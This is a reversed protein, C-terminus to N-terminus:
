NILFEKLIGVDECIRYRCELLFVGDELRAAANKELIEAGVLQTKELEVLEREAQQRAQEETLVLKTETLKEYTTNKIAIPLRVGFVEIRKSAEYVNVNESPAPSIYLPINLGMLEISRRTVPSQEPAMVYQELPVATSLIESREVMVKGTARKIATRGNQMEIIGSILLDGAAVTDGKQVVGQGTYVEIERVVGGYLAVVNAPRSHDHVKDPPYVREKVKIHVASGEVNVAIWSLGENQVLMSRQVTDAEISSHLVGERVGLESLQARLQEEPITVCGEIEVTWVFLSLLSLLAIFSVTGLMLGWRKRNQFALYWLGCKQIVRVRTSTKKALKPMRKYDRAFTNAEFGLDNAKIDWLRVRENVCLSILRQAFGGQARFRVYGRIYRIIRVIFM